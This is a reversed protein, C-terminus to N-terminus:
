KQSRLPLNALRPQSTQAQFQHHARICAVNVDPFTWIQAQLHSLMEKRSIVPNQLPVSVFRKSSPVSQAKLSLEFFADAAM